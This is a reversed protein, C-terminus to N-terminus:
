ELLWKPNEHIVKITGMEKNYYYITGVNYYHYRMALIGDRETEAFKMIFNATLIPEQSHYSFVSEQYSLIKTVKDRLGFSIEFTKGIISNNIHEKYYTEYIM